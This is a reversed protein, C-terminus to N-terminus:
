QVIQIVEGAILPTGFTIVTTAPNYSYGQSDPPPTEATLVLSNRTLLRIPLGAIFGPIKTANITTGELGTATYEVPQPPNHFIFGGTM